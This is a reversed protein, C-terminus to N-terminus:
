SNSQHSDKSCNKAIVKLDTLYTQTASQSVSPTYVSALSEIHYTVNTQAKSILKYPLLTSLSQLAKGFTYEVICQTGHLFFFAQACAQLNVSLAKVSNVISM